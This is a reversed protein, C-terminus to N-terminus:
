EAESKRVVEARRDEHRLREEPEMEDNEGGISGGGGGELLPVLSKGQKAQKQPEPPLEPQRLLKEIKMAVLDAELFGEESKEDILSHGYRFLAIVPDIQEAKHARGKMIEGAPDQFKLIESYVTIPAVGVALAQQAIAYNAINQEPSVSHFKYSIKYKKDIDSATYTRKLGEEGLEAEYSGAVYQDRAMKHWKRLFLSIAQLRPSFIADKTQTLKSIAVASLPFTLNGYDINPLSGRQVAGLLLAQFLRTANTVDAVEMPFLGRTGKDIAITKRTGPKPPKKALAGQESEWLHVRNFSMYNLTQLISGLM